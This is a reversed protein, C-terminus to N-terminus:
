RGGAENGILVIERSNADIELNFTQRGVPDVATVYWIANGADDSKLQLHINARPHANIFDQGGRGLFTLLLDDSDLTWDPMVPKPEMRAPQQRTAQAGQNDVTVLQVRGAAPSFFSFSWDARQLTLQDGSAVQWSTTAGTIQADAQWNRATAEAKEFAAQLAISEGSRSVQVAPPEDSQTRQSMLWLAGYLVINLLVVALLITTQRHNIHPSAQSGQKSV